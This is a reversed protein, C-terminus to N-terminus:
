ESDLELEACEDERARKVGCLIAEEDDSEEESEVEM